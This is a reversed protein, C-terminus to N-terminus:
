SSADLALAEARVALETAHAAEASAECAEFIAAAQNAYAVADDFRKESLRIEAITRTADAVLFPRGIARAEAIARECHAEAVQLDGAIALKGGLNVNATARGMAHDIGEFHALARRDCDIGAGIDGLREHLFGLNILCAGIQEPDGIREALALGEQLERKADDPRDGVNYAGGVVRTAVLVGRLDGLDEFV